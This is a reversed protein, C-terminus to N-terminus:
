RRTFGISSSPSTSGSLISSEVEGKGLPHEVVSSRCREARLFLRGSICSAGAISLALPGRCTGRRTPVPRGPRTAPEGLPPSASIRMAPRASSATIASAPQAGTCAGGGAGGVGAGGGSAAGGGACGGAAFEILLEDIQREAHAGAFDAHAPQRVALRPRALNAQKGLMDDGPLGHGVPAQQREGPVELDLRRRSPVLRRGLRIVLAPPGPKSM